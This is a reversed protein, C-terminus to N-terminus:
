KGLEAAYVEPKFGILLKIGKLVPILWGPGPRDSGFRYETPETDGHKKWAHTVVWNDPDFPNAKRKFSTKTTTECDWTGYSM